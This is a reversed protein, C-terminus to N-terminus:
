ELSNQFNFKQEMYKEVFGLPLTLGAKLSLGKAQNNIVLALVDELGINFYRYQVVGGAKFNKSFSSYYLPTSFSWNKIEMHPTVGFIKQVMPNFGNNSNLLGVKAFASVLFKNNINYDLIITFSAPTYIYQHANDEIRSSIGQKSLYSQLADTNDFLNSISDTSLTGGGNATFKSVKKFNIFGLDNISASVRFKYKDEPIRYDLSDIPTRWEYSLGLDIGAGFAGSKFSSKTLNGINFWNQSTTNQSSAASINLQQINLNNSNSDPTSINGQLQKINIGNTNLGNLYKICAGFSITSSKKDKFIKTAYSLSTENWANQNFLLNQAYISKDQPNSSLISGIMEPQYGKLGISSHISNNLFFHHKHKYQAYLGLLKIDINASFAITGFNNRKLIEDLEAIPLGQNNTWRKIINNRRILGYTQDANINLSYLDLSWEPNGLALLAPNNQQASLINIQGVGMGFPIPVIGELTFWLLFLLNKCYKM